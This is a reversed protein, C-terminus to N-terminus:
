DLKKYYYDPNILSGCKKSLRKEDENDDIENKLLLRSKIMRFSKCKYRIPIKKRKILIMEIEIRTMMKIVM